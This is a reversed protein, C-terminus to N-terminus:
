VTVDIKIIGEVKRFVEPNKLVGKDVGFCKLGKVLKDYGQEVEHMRLNIKGESM